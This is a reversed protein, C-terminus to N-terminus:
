ASKSPTWSEGKSLLGITALYVAAPKGGRAPVRAGRQFVLSSSALAKLSETVRQRSIGTALTLDSVTAGGPTNVLAELVRQQQTDPKKPTPLALTVAKEVDAGEVDGINGSVLRYRPVGSEPGGWVREVVLDDPPTDDPFRTKFWGIKRLPDQRNKTAGREGTGTVWWGIDLKAEIVTGGRPRHPDSRPTHHLVTVGAGANTVQRCAGLTKLMAENNDAGMWEGLSDIIVRDYRGKQVLGVVTQVVRAWDTEMIIGDIVVPKYVDAAYVVDIFGGAKPPLYRYRIGDRKNGPTEYFGWRRLLPQLTAPGMESLLLVRKCPTTALGCFDVGDFGDRLQGFKVETKGTGAPGCLMELLSPGDFGKTFFRQQGFSGTAIRQASVPKIQADLKVKATDPTRHNERTGGRGRWRLGSVSRWLFFMGMRRSVLVLSVGALFIATRWCLALTLRFTLWCFRLAWAVLFGVAFGIWQLVVM